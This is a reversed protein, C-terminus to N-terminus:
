VSGAKKAQFYQNLQFITASMLLISLTPGIIRTESLIYGAAGLALIHWGPALVKSVIQTPASKTETKKNPM